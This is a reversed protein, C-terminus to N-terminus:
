KGRLLIEKQQITGGIGDTQQAIGEKRNASPIQRVFGGMSKFNEWQYNLCITLIPDDMSTQHKGSEEIEYSGRSNSFKSIPGTM